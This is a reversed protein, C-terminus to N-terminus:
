DEDEAKRRKGGLFIGAFAGAGLVMAAYPAINVAVGTVTIDNQTNTWEIDDVLDNSLSREDLVWDNTGVGGSASNLETDDVKVSPTYNSDSTETVKYKIGAPIGTIKVSEDAKLKVELTTQAKGDYTWTSAAGYDADSAGKKAYTVVFGDPVNTFAM